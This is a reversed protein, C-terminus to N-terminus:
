LVKEERLSDIDAQDYGLEKLIEENSAGPEPLLSVIGAPTRSLDIPQGVLTARRNGEGEVSVAIGLHQVQPDAFVEDMKYIPGAPVGAEELRALWDQSTHASFIDALTANL